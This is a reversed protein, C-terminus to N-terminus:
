PQIREVEHLFEDFSVPFALPVHMEPLGVPHYHWGGANDVAYVREEDRILAYSINGSEPNFYAEVFGGVYLDIRLKISPGVYRVITATECIASRHASAFVADAFDAITM